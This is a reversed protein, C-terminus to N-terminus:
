KLLGGFALSDIGTTSYDYVYGHPLSVHDRSLFDHTPFLARMDYSASLIDPSEELLRGILEFDTADSFPEVAEKPTNVYGMTNAPGVKYSGSSEALGYQDSADLYPDVGRLNRTDNKRRFSITQVEDTILISRRNEDVNVLDGRTGKFRFPVEIFSRDTEARVSFVDIAADSSIMESSNVIEKPIILSAPDTVIIRVPDIANDIDEYAVGDQYTDPIGFDNDLLFHSPAVNFGTSKRGTQTTTNSPKSQFLSLPIYSKIGLGTGSDVALVTPSDTDDYSGSDVRVAIGGKIKLFDNNPRIMMTSPSVYQNVDNVYVGQNYKELTNSGSFEQPFVLGVTSGKTKFGDTARQSSM